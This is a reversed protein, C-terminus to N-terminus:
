AIEEYLMPGEFFEEFLTHASALAANGAAIQLVRSEEGTCFDSRALLSLRRLADEIKALLPEFRVPIVYVSGEVPRQGFVDAEMAIERLCDALFPYEKNMEPSLIPFLGDYSM